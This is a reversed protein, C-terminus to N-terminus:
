LCFLIEEQRVIFPVNPNSGQIGCYYCNNQLLEYIRSIGRHPFCWKQTINVVEERALSALHLHAKEENLNKLLFHTHYIRRKDIYHEKHLRDILEHLNM